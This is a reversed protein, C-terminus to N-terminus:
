RMYRLSMGRGGPPAQSWLRWQTEEPTAGTQMRQYGQYQQQATPGMRAFYQASPTTLGPMASPTGVMQGMRSGPYTEAWGPLGPIIEGAKMGGYQQPMLPTMWPQIVAPTGSALSYELWSQPRARLGALYQQQQLELARESEKEAFEQQRLVLLYEKEAEAKRTAEAEATRAAAAAAQEEQSKLYAGQYESMPAPLSPAPSVEVWDPYGQAGPVYYGVAGDGRTHVQYYTMEPEGAPLRGGGFLQEPRVMQSPIGAQTARTRLYNPDVEYRYGMFEGTVPSNVPTPAYGEPWESPPPPIQPLNTEQTGTTITPKGTITGEATEIPPTEGAQAALWADIDETRYGGAPSPVGLSKAEETPAKLLEGTPTKSVQRFTPPAYKYIWEQYLNPFYKKILIDKAHDSLGKSRIVEMFSGPQKPM